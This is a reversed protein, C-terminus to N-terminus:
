KVKECVIDDFMHYTFTAKGKEDQGFKINFPLNVSAYETKSVPLLKTTFGQINDKLRLFDGELFLTLSDGENSTYIGTYTDYIAPKVNATAIIKETNMNGLGHM